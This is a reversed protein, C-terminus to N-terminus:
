AIKDADHFCATHAAGGEIQINADRREALLHRTQFIFESDAQQLPSRAAYHGGAGAEGKVRLRLQRQAMSVISNEGRALRAKGTVDADTHRGAGSRYQAYRKDVGHAFAVGVDAQM